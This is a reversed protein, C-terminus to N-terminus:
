LPDITRPMITSGLQLPIAHRGRQATWVLGELDAELLPFLAGDVKPRAVTSTAHPRLGFLTDRVDTRRPGTAGPLIATLRDVVPAMLPDREELPLASVAFEVREGHGLDVLAAAAEARIPGPTKPNRIAQSLRELGDPAQKWATIDSSSVGGCAALFVLPVVHARVGWRIRVPAFADLRSYSAM